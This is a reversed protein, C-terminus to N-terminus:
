ELTGNPRDQNLPYLLNIQLIQLSYLHTYIYIYIYM